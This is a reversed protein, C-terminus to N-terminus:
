RPFVTIQLNSGPYHIIEEVDEACFNQNTYSVAARIKRKRRAEEPLHLCTSEGESLLGLQSRKFNQLYREDRFYYLPFAGDSLVIFQDSPTLIRQLQQAMEEMPRHINNRWLTQGWVASLLHEPYTAYTYTKIHTQYTWLGTMVIVIWSLRLYIKKNWGTTVREFAAIGFPILWCFYAFFHQATNGSLYFSWLVGYGLLIAFIKTHYRAQYIMGAILLIWSFFPFVYWNLARLNQIMSTINLHSTDARRLNHHLQGLSGSQGSYVLYAPWGFFIAYYVLYFGAFPLTLLLYKKFNKWSKQGHLIIIGYFTHYGACVPLLATFWVFGVACYLGGLLYKKHIQSARIYRGSVSLLLNILLMIWLTEGAHGLGMAEIDFLGSVALLTGSFFGGWCGALHWGINAAVMCVAVWLFINPLRLVAESAGLISVFPLVVIYRAPPQYSSILRQVFAKVGANRILHALYASVRLTLVEDEHRFQADMITLAPICAIFGVLIVLFLQTPEKM